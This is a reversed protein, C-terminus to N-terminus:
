EDDSSDPEMYKHADEIDIKKLKDWTKQDLLLVEDNNITSAAIVSM